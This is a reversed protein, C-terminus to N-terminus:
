APPPPLPLSLGLANLLELAITVKGLGAIAILYKVRSFSRGLRLGVNRPGEYPETEQKPAVVEGDIGAM